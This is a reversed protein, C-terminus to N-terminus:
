APRGDPTQFESDRRWGAIVRAARNYTKGLPESEEAPRAMVAKVAKRTLGTIVAVRSVSQKRGQIDFEQLAVRAFTEKAIETFTGYSVGSRLLIRVLPTLVRVITNRLPSTIAM